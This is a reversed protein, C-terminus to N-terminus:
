ESLSNSGLTKGLLYGLRKTLPEKPIATPKAVLIGGCLRPSTVSPTRAYM